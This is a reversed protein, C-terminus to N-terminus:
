YRCRQMRAACDVDPVYSARIRGVDVFARPPALVDAAALDVDPVDHGYVRGVDVFARPVFDSAARPASCCVLRRDCSIM